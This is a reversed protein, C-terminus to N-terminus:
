SLFRHIAEKFTRLLGRRGFSRPVAARKVRKSSVRPCSMLPATNRSETTARNKKGASPIARGNWQGAAEGDINTAGKADPAIV